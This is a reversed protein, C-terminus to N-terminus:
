APSIPAAARLAPESLAFGDFEALLDARLTEDHHLFAVALAHRNMAWLEPLTVGLDTVAREYERVLTLGSVTRDDTSLTVPVGRRLLAPLPHSAVDPVIGAQVNSTPCLDLTIGRAILEIQLEEDDGAPSGHAIRWPHVALARRVQAAGGWEGAHITIGLGAARAIDFAEAHAMPDPFAEEQGALDFGTLGRDMFATAARAVEVSVAPAHSRLAVAILRVIMGAERAGAECGACVAAIGAELSLGAQVHLAPAWRVEVYRTADSAVDEVLERAVRELAQEDQMLAIPLDFAGLLEAQSECREPAVLRGRMEGASLRGEAMGRRQAVELATQPRVSGDLHLHLEAKPMRALLDAAAPQSM